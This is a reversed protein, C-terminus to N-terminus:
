YNMRRKKVKKIMKQYSRMPCKESHECHVNKDSQVLRLRFKCGIRRRLFKSRLIEHEDIVYHYVYNPDESSVGEAYFNIGFVNLIKKKYIDYSTSEDTSVTSKDILKSNEEKQFIYTNEYRKYCGCIIIENMDNSIFGM